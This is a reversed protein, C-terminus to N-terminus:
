QFARLLPDDDPDYEIDQSPIEYGIGTKPNTFVQRSVHEQRIIRNRPTRKHSRKWPTQQQISIRRFQDKEAAERKIEKNVLVTCRFGVTDHIGTFLYMGFNVDKGIFPIITNPEQAIIGSDYNDPTIEPGTNEYWPLLIHPVRDLNTNKYLSDSFPCDVNVKLGPWQCHFWGVKKMSIRSPLPDREAQFYYHTNTKDNPRITISTCQVDSISCGYFKEIKRKLSNFTYNCILMQGNKNVGLKIYEHRVSTNLSPGSIIQTPYYTLLKTVYEIRLFPDQSYVEDMAQIGSEDDDPNLYSM